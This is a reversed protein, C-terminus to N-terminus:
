KKLVALESVMEKTDPASGRKGDSEKESLAREGNRTEENHSCGVIVEIFVRKQLSMSM